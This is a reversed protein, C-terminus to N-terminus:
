SVLKPLPVGLMECAGQFDQPIPASVVVRKGALDAFEISWSHLALREFGLVLPRKPAYLTDGVVPRGIAELHVRIQHTRGTKPEAQVLSFTRGFDAPVNALINKAQEENLSKTALRTWYTEADRVEGRLGRGTSWKRFNKGSRGIARDITGFDEQMDGWVLALYKKRITRDQFQKKLSAHGSATKALLIVGSTERDLRHVIGSRNVALGEEDQMPDGVNTSQPYKALFWDALFPGENKADSHVM